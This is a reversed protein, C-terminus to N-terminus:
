LAARSSTLPATAVAVAAVAVNSWSVSPLIRWVPRRGVGVSFCVPAFM